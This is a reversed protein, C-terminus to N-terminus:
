LNVEYLGFLKKNSGSGLKKVVGALEWRKVTRSFNGPDLGVKKAVEGQTLLGNCLNYADLQKEGGGGALIIQKLENEKFAIRGLLSVSFELLQLYSESVLYDEKAMAKVM